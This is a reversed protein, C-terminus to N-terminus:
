KNIKTAKILRTNDSIVPLIQVIHYTDGAYEIQTASSLICNNRVQLVLNGAVFEEQGTTNANEVKTKRYCRITGLEVLDKKQAGTASTSTKYGFVKIKEKLLGARM